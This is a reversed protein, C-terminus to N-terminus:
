VTSKTEVDFSNEFYLNYEKLDNINTMVSFDTIPVNTRTFPLLHEKLSMNRNENLISLQVQKNILIPHGSFNGYMPVKYDSTQENEVMCKIVNATIFPNDINQIFVSNIDQFLALGKKISYLRGNEPKNNIVYFTDTAQYLSGSIRDNLVVTIHPIGAKHYIDIIQFLFNKKFSYPLLSKPYGMRSSNGAALIVCGVDKFPIRNEKMHLKKAM